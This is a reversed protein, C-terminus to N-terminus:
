DALKIRVFAEELVPMGDLKLRSLFYTQNELALLETLRRMEMDLADAIWYHSFDGLMGVYQSATFTNPVWESVVLPFNLLQDPEGERVNQRWLYRGENDKLLSIQKVADRHYMWNANPWYQAKLTYKAGILQDFTLGTVTADTDYDRATSIGDASAVFIGLPKEVGDGTMFAQEQVEGADRSLEMNVIAEPGMLASRLLDNSVPIGGTLYHPYLKRKGFKLSQDDTPKEIEASWAFTSAKGTRKPAGLSKATAVTFQRALQRMFVMDDIAKILEAVFQEPPVLYGAQEDDDTRLVNYVDVSVERSVLWQRFAHHYEPTSRRGTGLGEIRRTKKRGWLDRVEWTFPQGDASAGDNGTGPQGPDSIRNGQADLLQGTTDLRNRLNRQGIARQEIANIDSIEDLLKDATQMEEATLDRDEKEATDNIERAKELRQHKQDRLEKVDNTDMDNIDLIAVPM